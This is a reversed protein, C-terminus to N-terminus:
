FNYAINFLLPTSYMCYQIDIILAFKIGNLTYLQIVAIYMYTINKVFLKIKDTLM